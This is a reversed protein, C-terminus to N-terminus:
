FLKLLAVWAVLQVLCTGSLLLRAAFRDFRIVSWALAVNAAAVLATILPLIFIERPTGIRDPQGTADYHLPLTRPVTDYRVLIFWLMAAVLAGGVLILVVAARDRFLALAESGAAHRAARRDAADRGGAPRAGTFEEDEALDAVAPALVEPALAALSYGSAARLRQYRDMLEGPRDPSIGFSGRASCLLLQRRPPLTAFLQIRGLSEDRLSSLYYGPWPWLRGTAVSGIVQRAPGFYEIEDLPIRITTWAWRVVLAADEGEAGEDFGYSLTFYGWLLVVLAASAAAFLAVVAWVAGSAAWNGAVAPLTRLVLWAIDGLCLLLALIGVLSGASPASRWRRV